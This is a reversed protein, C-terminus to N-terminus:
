PKRSQWENQNAKKIGKRMWPLGTFTNKSAKKIRKRM